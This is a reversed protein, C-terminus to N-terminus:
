ILYIKKLLFYIAHKCSSQKRGGTYITPLIYHREACYQIRKALITDLIKKITNILAIPRYSKPQSYNDKGPKQLAVTISKKFKAPCYKMDISKNFLTTLRPALLDTALKLIRNPLEDKGPAKDPPAVRLAERVMIRDAETKCRRPM